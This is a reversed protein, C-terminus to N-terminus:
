DMYITKIRNLMKTLSTSHFSFLYGTKNRIVVTLRIQQFKKRKTEAWTKVVEDKEAVERGRILKHTHPKIFHIRQYIKCSRTSLYLRVLARSASAPTECGSGGFGLRFEM